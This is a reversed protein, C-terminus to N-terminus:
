HCTERREDRGFRRFRLSLVLESPLYCFTPWRHIHIIRFLVLGDYNVALNGSV